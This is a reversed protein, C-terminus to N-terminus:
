LSRLFALLNDTDRNSLADFAGRSAAAQGDHRAIADTLTLSLADHMFRDHTRLGWLPATRLQNASGPGGNQVIGDGTGIDHLLFDSFPHIIKNGLEPPVTFTGGNIVTGAPATVITPTHCVACGIRNFVREGDRVAANIPGRGPARTARMFAAFAEVDEGEDEPEAVFDYAAVSHGLSTNEVIAAPDRFAEVSQFPSTIGMENLYADGSFSQLSAHQNKWGFRGIRLAGDAEVVPVNIATGRQGRPQADRLALLTSNSIAEVFGDGLINLSTRFARIDERDPVTEQVSAATARSHILSGGPAEVFAGSRSRHGARVEVIQSGAGTGPNQHCEVCGRANYTPGLGDEVTESEEFIFKNDRFSRSPVPPNDVDDVPDGLPTFGNHLATDDASILDLPATLAESPAERTTGRELAVSQALAHNASTGFMVLVSALLTKKM